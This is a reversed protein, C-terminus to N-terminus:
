RDRDDWEDYGWEDENSDDYYFYGQNPCDQPQENKWETTSHKNLNPYKVGEAKEDYYLDIGKDRKEDDTGDVIGNMEAMLVFYDKGGFVGYGEYESETWTNGKDDRLTVTILPKVEQGSCPITEGTDQTLWSFLGM